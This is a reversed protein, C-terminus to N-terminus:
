EIKVEPTDEEAQKMQKQFQTPNAAKAAAAREVIAIRGALAVVFVVTCATWALWVLISAIALGTQRRKFMVIVVWIFCVFSVLGALAPALMEMSGM